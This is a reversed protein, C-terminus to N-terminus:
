SPEKSATALPRDAHSVWRPPEGDAQRLMLNLQASHHQVHRMSYLHLNLVSDQKKGHNHRRTADEETMAAITTRCKERGHALYQRMEDKTYVRDTYVGAPDLEDMTFPAPPRFTDPSEHLYYDLWWLTHFVMYWFEIHPYRSNRASWLSEPCADIANELMGIAAGYQDWLNEKVAEFTSM